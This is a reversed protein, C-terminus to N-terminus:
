IFRTPVPEERVGGHGDSEVWWARASPRISVAEALTTGVYHPGVGDETAYGAALTGDAM